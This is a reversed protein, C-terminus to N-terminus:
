GKPQVKFNEGHLYHVISILFSPRSVAHVPFLNPKGSAICVLIRRWNHLVRVVISLPTESGMSVLRTVPCPLIDDGSGCLVHLSTPPIGM